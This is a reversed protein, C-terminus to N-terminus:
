ASAMKQLCKEVDSVINCITTQAASVNVTNQGSFDKTTQGVAAQKCSFVIVAAGIEFLQAM